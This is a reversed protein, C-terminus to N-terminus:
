FRSCGAVATEQVPSYKASSTHLRRCSGPIGLAPNFSCEEWGQGARRVPLFRPSFTERDTRFPVPLRYCFIKQKGSRKGTWKLKELVQSVEKATETASDILTIGPGMAKSIVTKLLPYHTCGLVLTDIGTGPVLAFINKRLLRRLMTKRGAKRPSRFLSRAPMVTFLWMPRSREQDGKRVRRQRHHGRHRHRGCEPDQDGRCGGPRGARARRDGAASVREKGGALSIASATNCAIVLM